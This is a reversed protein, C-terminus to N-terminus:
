KKKAALLENALTSGLILLAGFLKGVTLEEHLLVASLLIALMPDIYGYLAVTQVPVAEFSGFYLAYAIGTHVIGVLLVMVGTKGAFSVGSFDETLLVYPLLVLAAFLLQVITKDYANIRGLTKNVTVVLGYLLAAGLGLLVGRLQSTDWGAGGVGSVFVMGALALAICLASRGGIKEGLLPSLLLIFVPAMYYCLTATAVSTYRYAEFLLMWNIGIMMGSAILKGANERIEKWGITRRLVATLCLLFATGIVGRLLALLASSLPIYSRFIGITGYICMATMLM